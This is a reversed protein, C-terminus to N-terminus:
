LFGPTVDHAIVQLEFFIHMCILLLVNHSKFIFSKLNVILILKMDAVLFQKKNNNVFNSIDRTISFVM